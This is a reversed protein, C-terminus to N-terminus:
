RPRCVVWLGDKRLMNRLRDLCRAPALGRPLFDSTPELRQQPDYEERLHLPCSKPNTREKREDMEHDRMTSWFHTSSARAAGAPRDVHLSCEAENLLRRAFNMEVSYATPVRCIEDVLIIRVYEFDPIIDKDLEVSFLITGEAGERGLV